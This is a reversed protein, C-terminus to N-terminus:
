YRYYVPFLMGLGKSVYNFLIKRCRYYPLVAFICWECLTMSAIIM